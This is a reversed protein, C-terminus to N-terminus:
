GEERPTRILTYRTWRREGERKVKGELVLRQLERQITKESVDRIMTSLDKIYVSGRTGLISLISDARGNAGNKKHGNGNSHGNSPKQRVLVGYRVSDSTVKNDNTYTKSVTRSLAALTPIEELTVKPEEYLAVEELLHQVERLVIAANMQSLKGAARAMGIVSSLALLERAIAERGEQLPLASADVLAISIREARDKLARSDKFAPLILHLAKGIMESKKYLYARRIDKDFVNTFISKELVLNDISQTQASRIVSKVEGTEKSNDM